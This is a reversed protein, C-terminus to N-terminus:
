AVRVKGRCRENLKSLFEKNVSELLKVNSFLQQVEKGSLLDAKTQLPNLFLEVIVGLDSVYEAETKLIEYIVQQRQQERPDLTAMVEPPPGNWECPISPKYEVVPAVTAM